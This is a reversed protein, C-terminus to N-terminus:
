GIYQISSLSCSILYIYLLYAHVFKWSGFSICNPCFVLYVLFACLLTVWCVTTWIIDFVWILMLYFGFILLHVLCFWHAYFIFLVCMSLSKDWKLFSFWIGVLSILLEWLSYPELLYVLGEVSKIIACLVLFFLNTKWFCLRTFSWVLNQHFCLYLIRVLIPSRGWSKHM